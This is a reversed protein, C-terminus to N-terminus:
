MMDIEFCQYVWNITKDFNVPFLLSFYNTKWQKIMKKVKDTPLEKKLLNLQFLSKYLWDPAPLPTGLQKTKYLFVM